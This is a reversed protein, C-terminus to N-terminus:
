ERGTSDPSAALAEGFHIQGADIRGSAEPHALGVAVNGGGEGLVGRVSRYPTTNLTPPYRTPTAEGVEHGCVRPDQGMQM